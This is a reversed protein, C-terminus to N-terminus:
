EHPRADNRENIAQALRSILDPVQEDVLENAIELQTVTDRQSRALCYKDLLNQLTM